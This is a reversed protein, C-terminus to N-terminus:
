FEFELGWYRAVEEPERLSTFSGRIAWWFFEKYGEVRPKHELQALTIWRYERGDVDHWVLPVKIKCRVRGSKYVEEANNAVSPALSPLNWKEGASLTAKHMAPSNIQKFYDNLSVGKESNDYLIILDVVVDYAEGGGSNHVTIPVTVVDDTRGTMPGVQVQEPRIEVSLRPIRQFRQSEKAMQNAEYSYWLAVLTLVPFARWLRKLLNKWGEKTKPFPLKM